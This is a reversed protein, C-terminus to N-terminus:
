GRPMGRRSTTVNGRGSMKKARGQREVHGQRKSACGGGGVERKGKAAAESRVADGSRMGGDGRTM